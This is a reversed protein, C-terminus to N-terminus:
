TVETCDRDEEDGDGNDPQEVCGPPFLGGPDNGDSGDQTCKIEPGLEEWKYILDGDEDYCGCLVNSVGGSAASTTTTLSTALAEPTFSYKTYICKILDDGSTSPKFLWAQAVFDLTYNIVRYDEDSMDHSIEPTCSQFIVKVNFEINLEDIRLRIFIEPTFFPLIQELIQDIDSLYLSWINMTFTFNYPAPALFKEYSGGDPDTSTCMEFFKNVQRGADFDITTLWVTIMPLVEDDKREQLWYWFKEKVSLKIPVHILERICGDPELRKIEIDNFADMFQIILKRIVEYYYFGKM